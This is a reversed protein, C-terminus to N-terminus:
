KNGPFLLTRERVLKEVISEVARRQFRAVTRKDRLSEVADEAVERREIKEYASEAIALQVDLRPLDQAKPEVLKEVHSDRCVRHDIFGDGERTARATEDIGEEAAGRALVIREGLSDGRCRRFDAVALRCEKEIFPGGGESRFCGRRECLPVLTRRFNEDADVRELGGDGLEHGRLGVSRRVRKVREREADRFDRALPHIL